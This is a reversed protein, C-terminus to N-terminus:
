TELILNWVGTNLSALYELDLNSPEFIVFYVSTLLNPFNFLMDAKSNFMSTALAHRSFPNSNMSFQIYCSITLHFSPVSTWLEDTVFRIAVPSLV